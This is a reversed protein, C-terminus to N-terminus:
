LKRMIDDRDLAEKEDAGFARGARDGTRHGVSTARHAATKLAGTSLECNVVPVTIFATSIRDIFYYVLFVKM